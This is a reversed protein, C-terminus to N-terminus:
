PTRDAKASPPWSCCYSLVAKTGSRDRFYRDTPFWGQVDRCARQSPQQADIVTRIEGGSVVQVRLVAGDTKEPESCAFPRIRDDSLCRAKHGRARARDAIAICREMTPLEVRVPKFTMGTGALWLVLTVAEM